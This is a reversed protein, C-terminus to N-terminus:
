FGEDDRAEDAGYLDKYPWMRSIGWWIAKLLVYGVSFVLIFISGYYIASVASVTSSTAGADRAINLVYNLGAVVLVLSFMYLGAKVPWHQEDLDISAKYIVYIFVSILVAIGVEWDAM